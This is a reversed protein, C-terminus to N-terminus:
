KVFKVTRLNAVFRGPVELAKVTVECTGADLSVKGASLSEYKSWGHTNPVKISVTQGNVTIGITSGPFQPDCAVAAIVEYEGAEAVEMKWIVEDTVKEWWAVCNADSNYVLAGDTVLKADKAKLTIATEETEAAGNGSSSSSACSAAALLVAIIILFNRISM